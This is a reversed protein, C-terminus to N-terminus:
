SALRRGAGPGPTQVFVERAEIEIAVSPWWTMRRTVTRPVGVIALQEALAGRYLELGLRDGDEADRVALARGKIQMSKEDAPRTFTIAVQGNDAINALTAGALARAVFVTLGHRDRHVRPGMAPACEPVNDGDRTALSMIVGSDLLELVEACLPESPASM